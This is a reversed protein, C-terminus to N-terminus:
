AAATIVITRPNKLSEIYGGAYCASIIIVRWKIGSEGLAEALEAETLDNLPLDANSVAIAPDRAGHSSISLFLVDRDLNMRGALGRLAYKLGSVSALPALELDREDNILSLARSEM